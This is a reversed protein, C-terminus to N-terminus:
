STLVPPARSQFRLETRAQVSQLFSPAPASADDAALQLLPVGPMACDAAHYQLCKGLAHGSSGQAPEASFGPNAEPDVEPDFGPEADVSAVRSLDDALHAYGHLQTAAQGLLVGLVLLLRLGLKIWHSPAQLDVPSSRRASSM